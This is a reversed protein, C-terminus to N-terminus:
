ILGHGNAIWFRTRNTTKKTKTGFVSYVHHAKRRIVKVFTSILVHVCLNCCLSSRVVAISSGAVLVCKTCLMKSKGCPRPFPHKNQVIPEGGYKVGPVTTSMRVSCLSWVSWIAVCPSPPCLVVILLSPFGSSPLSVAFVFAERFMWWSSSPSLKRDVNLKRRLLRSRLRHSVEVLTAYSRRELSILLNLNHGSPLNSLM